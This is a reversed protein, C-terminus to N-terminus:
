LALLKDATAKGNKVCDGVAIGGRYNSCIMLGPHLAELQDIADMIQQHGLNYQPIAKEWRNIRTYVPEGKVGMLAEIESRVMSLLKEDPLSVLEPQRSGGVFTTLAIHGEPARYPFLSSSWITGLIQRREKAPVLYGFGDLPRSCQDARYGLFVEAVPPYYMSQLQSALAPALPQLLRSAHYAPIAIVVADAELTSSKGALTYDVSFPPIGDAGKQRVGIRTVACGCQVAMGLHKAVARPFEEMGATFSFMQARDKAVEARKKRERAGGIMGKILGGYKEELAYLKPFASRVSLTEPNGAFVGAVFPNIAYDLFERGLRREVFEAVTEERRARGVFPEKLLRLKGPVTWLQSKFFLSPTMPLLHLQGNRVIFRKNSAPDAYRHEGALGAIGVMQKIVPTTELASNPGNEVLWGGEILTRMTGGPVQDRELVTVNAGGQKLWFAATLGSIGGGIIVTHKAKMM